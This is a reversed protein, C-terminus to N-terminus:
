VFSVQFGKEERCHKGEHLGMSFLAMEDDDDGGGATVEKFGEDLIVGGIGPHGGGYFGVPVAGACAQGVTLDADAFFFGVGDATKGLIHIDVEGGGMGVGVVVGIELEEFGHTM